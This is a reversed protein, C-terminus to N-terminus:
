TDEHWDNTAPSSLIHLEIARVPGQCPSLTSRTVPLCPVWRLGVCVSKLLWAAEEKARHLDDDGVAAENFLKVPLPEREACAADHAASCVFLLVAIRRSM